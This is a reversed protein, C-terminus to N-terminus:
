GRVPLHACYRVAAATSKARTSPMSASREQGKGLIRGHKFDVLVEVAGDLRDSEASSFTRRGDADHGRTFVFEAGGLTFDHVHHRARQADLQWVASVPFGESGAALEVHRGVALELQFHGDVGSVQAFVAALVRPKVAFFIGTDLSVPM